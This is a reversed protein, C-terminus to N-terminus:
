KKKMDDEGFVHAEYTYIEADKWGDWGIFAKDQSCHGLFEELNWHTETAVQPLFTGSRNGKRIYIGHKGLEIEDISQIRKMPTLVSIEIKIRGIESVKLPEFRPDGTAAEIAMSRITSFLPESPQFSGICGRLQGNETLTVFAGAPIKLGPTLVKENIEPVKKNKIYEAITQRAIHLLTAKEAESLNYPQVAQKQVLGIAYYGVVRSKDGYRPVDGSNKHVIKLFALNPNKETIDLLTLVSTWGCMATELSPIHNGEDSQKSNLFTRSSNSLVAEAMISDSINSDSYKPYHSFDTSIVFLNENNLFPELAEAIRSCTAPSDGGIIIPVITFPKKLWYQLFPLQVEISHERDHPRTVGSIFNYKKVLWSTLTDVKVRGLPTIFDGSAYASAGDFWTTHSSGIVFIHKFVADRSIQKFGAAAVSGSFIYGAHPVIVALPRQKLAAPANSFYEKLVKQLESKDSPYFSGAVAPQRDKSIPNQSNSRADSSSCLFLIGTFIFIRVLFKQM